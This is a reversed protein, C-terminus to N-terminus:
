NRCFRYQCQCQTDPILTLTLSRVDRPCTLTDRVIVSDSGRLRYIISFKEFLALLAHHLHAPQNEFVQGIVSLELVGNKIWRHRFTILSAMVSALWQPDLVVLDSLRCNKWEGYGISLASAVTNEDDYHILAGADSLFTTAMKLEDDTLINCNLAWQRYQTWLVVGNNPRQEQICDHLRVWSSAVTSCTQAGVQLLRCVYPFLSVSRALSILVYM